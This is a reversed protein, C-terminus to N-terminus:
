TQNRLVSEPRGQAGPNRDRDGAEGFRALAVACIV